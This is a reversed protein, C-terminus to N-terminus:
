VAQVPEDLYVMLQGVRSTQGLGLRTGQGALTDGEIEEVCGDVRGLDAVPLRNDPDGMAERGLVGRFDVVDEVVRDNEQRRRLIRIPLDQDDVVPVLSPACRKLPGIGVEIVAVGAVVVVAVPEHEGLLFRPHRHVDM